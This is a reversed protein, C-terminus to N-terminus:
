TLLGVRWRTSGLIKRALYVVNHRGASMLSRSFRGGSQVTTCRNSRSSLESLSRTPTISSDCKGGNWEEERLERPRGDSGLRRHRGESRRGYMQLAVILPNRLLELVSRASWKGTVEHKSRQCTRQRGADPSPIRERNLASAIRKAGWGDHARDLMWRWNEIAQAADPDPRLVVHCGQGEVRLRSTGSSEMGWAGALQGLATRPPGTLCKHSVRTGTSPLCGRTGM